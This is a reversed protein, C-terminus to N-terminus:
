WTPVKASIYDNLNKVKKWKKVEQQALNKLEPSKYYQVCSHLVTRGQAAETVRGVKNVSDMYMQELVPILSKLIVSDFLAMAIPDYPRLKKIGENSGNSDLGMVICNCLARDKFHDITLEHRGNKKEASCSYLIVLILLYRM